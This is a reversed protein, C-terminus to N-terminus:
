NTSTQKHLMELGDGLGAQALREGVAAAALALTGALARAFGAAGDGVLAALAAIRLRKGTAIAFGVVGGFSLAGREPLLGGNGDPARNAARRWLVPAKAM